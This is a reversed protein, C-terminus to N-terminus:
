GRVDLQDLVHVKIPEALLDAIRARYAKYHETARHADLASRDNYIEFLHFSGGGEAARYLDYTICGPERRTPSVMGRLVKEVESEQGPRPLFSAFVIVRTSAM